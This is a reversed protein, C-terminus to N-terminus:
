KSRKFTAFSKAIIDQYKKWQSKDTVTGTLVYEIGDKIAILQYGEMPVGNFTAKYDIRFGPLGDITVDKSSIFKFGDIQRKYEDLFSNVWFSRLDPDYDIPTGLDVAGVAISAGLTPALLVVGATKGKEVSWGKPLKMTFYRDTYVASDLVNKTDVKNSSQTNKKKAGEISKLLAQWIKQNDKSSETSAVFGISITNETTPDYVFVNYGEISSSPSKEGSATIGQATGKSVLIPNSRSGQFIGKKIKYIGEAKNVTELLTPKGTSPDTVVFNNKKDIWLEDKQYVNIEIFGDVETLWMVGVDNKIASSPVTIMAEGLDGRISPSLDSLQADHFSIKNTTHSQSAMEQLQKKEIQPFISFGAHASASPFLIVLAVLPYLFQILGINIKSIMFFTVNFFVRKLHLVCMLSVKSYEVGSMLITFKMSVVQEGVLNQKPKCWQM